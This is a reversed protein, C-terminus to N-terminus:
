QVIYSPPLKLYNIATTIAHFVLSVSVLALNINEGSSVQHQLSANEEDANQYYDRTLQPSFCSRPPPPPPFNVHQQQQQHQPTATASRSPPQLYDNQISSYNYDKPFVTHPLSELPSACAAAM